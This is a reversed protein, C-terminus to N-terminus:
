LNVMITALPYGVFTYLIIAVASILWAWSHIEKPTYYRDEAYCMATAPSAAPTLLAVFVIMMVCLAIPAPNLGLETACAVAIPTLVFAMAANAAFNFIMYVFDAPM